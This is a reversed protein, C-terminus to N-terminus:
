NTFFGPVTRTIMPSGISEAPLFGLSSLASTFCAISAPRARMAVNQPFHMHAAGNRCCVRDRFTPVRNRSEAVVNDLQSFSPEIRVQSPVHPEDPTLVPIQEDIAARADHGRSRNDLRNSPIGHDRDGAVMPVIMRTAQVIERLSTTVM